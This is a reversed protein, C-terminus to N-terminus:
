WPAFIQVFVITGPKLPEIKIHVRVERPEPGEDRPHQM